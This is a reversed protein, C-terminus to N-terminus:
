PAKQSKTHQRNGWLASYCACLVYAAGQIIRGAPASIGSLPYAHIPLFLFPGSRPLPYKGPLQ